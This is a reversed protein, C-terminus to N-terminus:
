HMAVSTMRSGMSFFFSVAASTRSDDVGRIGQMEFGLTDNQLTHLWGALGKKGLIERRKGANGNKARPLAALGRQSPRQRGIPAPEVQLSPAVPIEYGATQADRRRGRPVIELDGM